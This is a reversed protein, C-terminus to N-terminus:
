VGPRYRVKIFESAQGPIQSLVNCQCGILSRTFLSITYNLCIFTFSRSSRSKPMRNTITKHFNSKPAFENWFHMKAITVSDIGFYKPFLNLQSSHLPSNRLRIQLAMGHLLFSLQHCSSSESGQSSGQGM